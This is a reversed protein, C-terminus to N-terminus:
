RLGVNRELALSILENILEAYELGADAWLLPYMSFPTFGPITNVENITIEGDNYFFDVRAMGECDLVTFAKVAMVRLRETDEESIKAPISLVLGDTDVYKSDFDYFDADGELVIEGMSSVRSPDTGHGGLVGCEVERGPVGSEVIVRPDHEMAALIAAELDESDTVRSVGLSSGARAPKVFLPYDLDECAALLETKENVWTKATVLVWPCVPLGAAALITKTYHKDMGAASALVGSGVYPMHAIEFLGQITGDEGFPGHLLPFVVDIHGLSEGECFLDGTAPDITVHPGDAVEFTNADQDAPAPNESGKVWVGSKTIGIPLVEYVTRDIAALVSAATMCSVSHEGSTGGYVIAVRKM